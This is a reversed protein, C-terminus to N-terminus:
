KLVIISNLPPTSIKLSFSQSVSFKLGLIANKPAIYPLVINDKQEIITKICVFSYGTTILSLIGGVLGLLLSALSPVTGSNNSNIYQSFNTLLTAIFMIGFYLAAKEKIKNDKLMYTFAEKM